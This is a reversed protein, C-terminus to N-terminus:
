ARRRRAALLGGLGAMALASPAPVKLIEGPGRVANTFVGEEGLEFGTTVIFYSIATNLSAEFGSRGIGPFDDNAAILNSIQAAPDFSGQYLFLYGDYDQESIFTYTGAETVQIECVHYTVPGLGSIGPGLGIPRNWQAAGVTSGQYELIGASASGALASVLAAAAIMTKM